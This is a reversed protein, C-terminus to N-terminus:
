LRRRRISDAITLTITKGTTGRVDVLMANTGPLLTVSKSVNTINTGFDTDKIVQVGNLTITAKTGALSATASMTYPGSTGAPPVFSEVFHTPTTATKTYVKPGFINVSADPTGVVTAILGAGAAGKLAVTLPVTTTADFSSIFVSREIYTASAFDAATAVQVGNVTVTATTLSGGVRQLRIIFNSPNLVWTTDLGITRHDAPIAEVFNVQVNNTTTVFQKPGFVVTTDPATVVFIAGAHRAYNRVAAKAESLSDFKAAGVLCISLMAFGVKYWWRAATRRRISSLVTRIRLRTQSLPQSV